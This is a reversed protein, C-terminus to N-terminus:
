RICFLDIVRADRMLLVVDRRLLSCVHVYAYLNSNCSAYQNPSNSIKLHPENFM